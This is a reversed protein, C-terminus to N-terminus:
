GKYPPTPSFPPPPPPDCQLPYPVRLSTALLSLSLSVSLSSFCLQFSYLAALLAVPFSRPSLPRLSHSHFFRPIACTARCLAPPPPPTDQGGPVGLVRIQRTTVLSSPNYCRASRNQRWGVAFHPLFPKSAIPVLSVSLSLSIHMVPDHLPFLADQLHAPPFFSPPLPPLPRPPGM